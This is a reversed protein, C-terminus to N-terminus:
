ARCVSWGCAASYGQASPSPGRERTRFAAKLVEVYRRTTAPNRHGMLRQLDILPRGQSLYRVAFAHRLAQAHVPKALGAAQGAKALMAQVTAAELHPRVWGGSRTDRLRRASPFIYQMSWREVRGQAHEQTHWQQLRALHERLGDRLGRPLRLRRVVAEEVDRVLLCWGDAEVDRVRVALLEEVRMGTAYLVEGIFRYAGPTQGFVRHIEAPTLLTEGLTQAAGLDNRGSSLPPAYM